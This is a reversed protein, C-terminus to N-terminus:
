TARAKATRVQERSFPSPKKGQEALKSVTPPNESEVQKDFDKEDVRAVRQVQKQQDVSMGATRAVKLKSHPAAEGKKNKGQGSEILELLQGARRIARARIRTAHNELSKDDAQKAYSALAASKDLQGEPLEVQPFHLHLSM